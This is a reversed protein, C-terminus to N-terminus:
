GASVASVTQQTLVTFFLDDIINATMSVFLFPTCKQFNKKKKKKKKAPDNFLGRFECFNFGVFFEHWM